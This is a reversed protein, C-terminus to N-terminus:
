KVSVKAPKQTRELPQPAEQLKALFFSKALAASKEKNTSATTEEEEVKHKLEPIKAKGGDSPQV